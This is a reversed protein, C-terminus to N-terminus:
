RGRPVERSAGDLAECCACARRQEDLARRAVILRWAVFLALLVSVAAIGTAALAVSRM